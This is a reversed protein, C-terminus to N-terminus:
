REMPCAAPVTSGRRGSSTATSPTHPQDYRSACTLPCQQVEASYPGRKMVTNDRSPSGSPMISTGDLVHHPGAPHLHRHGGEHQNVAASVREAVLARLQDRADTDM